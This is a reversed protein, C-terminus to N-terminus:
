SARRAPLPGENRLRVLEEHPIRWEGSRGRGGVKKAGRVRGLNCWQKVTWASLNLREAAEKTTYWQKEVQRETARRVAQEVMDQLRSFLLDAVARAVHEESSIDQM